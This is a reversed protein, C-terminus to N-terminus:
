EGYINFDFYQGAIEDYKGSARIAAIAASLKDRLETDAKRVGIGEGDGYYEPDIHLDGTLEYDAGADSSLFGDNIATSDALIADLRGATLDLYAEDQSGYLRLDADPFVGEMYSHHTAGRQVGVSKGAMGEPTTDLGAGKKAAFMAPTKYYKKTFDIVEMREPTISMSAVIADCKKELLAPIIGDWDVKVMECTEGIEECLANAIDIDFGVISGDASTESFPPYAGEVCVNLALAPGAAVLTAAAALTIIRNMITEGTPKIDRLRHAARTLDLTHLPM